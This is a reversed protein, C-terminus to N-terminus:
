FGPPSDKLMKDEIRALEKSYLDFDGRRIAELARDHHDLASAERSDHGFFYAMVDLAVLAGAFLMLEM